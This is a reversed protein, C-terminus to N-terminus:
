LLEGTKCVQAFKRASDRVTRRHTQYDVHILGFRPAFGKDWEFNDLLSWYLYGIVPVGQGIAAHVSRLHDTIFEWRQGDDETCIGNETIMVPVNYRKLKLLVQNLGSPYIDWGLFNKKCADHGEGCVESFLDGLGWRTMDVLNRSYYNFGIFDMARERALKNLIEFNFFFDRLWVALRNRWSDSCPVVAMMHQAIGAMPATLGATRYIDHIKRYSAIHADIMRDHVRWARPISQVQPPWVGFMYAHSILITPENITIWYRVHPALAKVVVDTYRAFREAARDDEWGGSQSFWQPNTFHHLTVVPEIGRRKLALIVDVYHKIAKESFRGEEPEIRAWEVSFRHANHNLEKVLDFDQEYLEYHRCAKASLEKGATKEWAWWDANDNNGEVQYASTAAGWLFGNPFKLM